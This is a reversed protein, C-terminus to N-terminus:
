STVKAYQEVYFELKHRGTKASSDYTWEFEAIHTETKGNAITDDVLVNHAPLPIWTFLGSTAHVTGENANLLDRGSVSAIVGATTKDYLTLTLTDLSAAAIPEGTHDRITATYRFTSKEPVTRQQTSLTIPM